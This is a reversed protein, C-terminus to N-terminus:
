PKGLEAQLLERPRQILPYCHRRRKLVRPEIRGPRNAVENAAIHALMTAYVAPTNFCSRTSVLMWSSLVSQCALTFGLRRPQKGHVAASPSIRKRILNSSEYPCDRIAGDFVRQIWEANLVESFPMGDGQLFPEAVACFDNKHRIRRAALTMM